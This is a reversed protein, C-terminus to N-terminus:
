ADSPRAVLFLMANVILQYAQSHYLHSARAQLREFSTRKDALRKAVEVLASLECIVQSLSIPPSSYPLTM